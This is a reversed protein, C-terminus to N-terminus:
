KRGDEGEPAWDGEVGGLAFISARGPAAGVHTMRAERVIGVQGPGDEDYDDLDRLDHLDSDSSFGSRGSRSSFTSMASVASIRKDRRPTGASLSGLSGPPNVLTSSSEGNKDEPYLGGPIQSPSASILSSRSKRSVRSARSARSSRRSRDPQTQSSPLPSLTDGAKRTSDPNVSSEVHGHGKNQNHRMSDYPASFSLPRAIKGLSIRKKKGKAPSQTLPADPPTQPLEEPPTRYHLSLRVDADDKQRGRNDNGNVAAQSRPVPQVDAGNRQGIRAVAIAEPAEDRSPVDPIDPAVMHEGENFTSYADDSDPEFMYTKLSMRPSVAGEGDESMHTGTHNAHHRRGSTSPVAPTHDSMAFLEDTDAASAPLSSQTNRRSRLPLRSPSENRVALGLGLGVGSGGKALMPSSHTSSGVIAHPPEYLRDMDSPHPSDSDSLSLAATDSAYRQGRYGSSRRRHGNIKGRSEDGSSQGHRTDTPRPTQGVDTLSPTIVEASAATDMSANNRHYPGDRKPEPVADSASGKRGLGALRMAPRGSSDSSQESPATRPRIQKGIGGKLLGGSAKSTVQRFPPRPSYKVEVAQAARTTHTVPPSPLASVPPAYPNPGYKSLLDTSTTKRLRPTSRGGLHDPTSTRSRDSPSAIRLPPSEFPISSGSRSASLHQLTTSPTVASRGPSRPPSSSLTSLSNSPIMQPTGPPDLHSALSHSRESKRLSNSSGLDATSDERLIPADVDVQDVQVKFLPTVGAQGGQVGEDPKAKDEMSGHTDASGGNDGEAGQMLGLVGEAWGSEGMLDLNAFGRLQDSLRKKAEDEEQAKVRAEPSRPPHRHATM